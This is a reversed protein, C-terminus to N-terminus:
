SRPPAPFMCEVWWILPLYQVKCEAGITLPKKRWRRRRCISTTSVLCKKGVFGWTLQQVRLRFSGATQKHTSLVSDVDDHIVALYARRHRMINWLVFSKMLLLVSGCNRSLTRFSKKLHPCQWFKRCSHDPSPDSFDSCHMVRPPIRLMSSLGPDRCVIVKISDNQMVETSRPFPDASWSFSGLFHSSYKRMDCADWTTVSYRFDDCDIIVALAIPPLLLYPCQRQCTNLPQIAIQRTERQM